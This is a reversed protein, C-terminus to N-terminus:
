RLALLRAVGARDPQEIVGKETVILDILEAPTVDFVPNWAPTGPPALPRGALTTLEEAARTEIPIAAGSDLTPDFTDTPAVVMVRAGHRRALVALTYTGIKNAVDGNAAIRDAGVVLWDVRGQQMLAGCAGECVLQFPIGARGLEWATLRAGQLWPRTETAYVAGLLGRAHAARIVGLATGCGASALAGTNCHTLVRAGPALRAAGAEAMARDAERLRDHMRSVAALLDEPAAPPEAEILPRLQALATHLNVATPRSAALRAMDEAVRTRWPGAQGGLVRSWHRAALCVGYAAALGIAPAGRVAMGRIAEAVAAADDLRLYVTEAPLRRQDLVELAEGTWRLAPEFAAANM